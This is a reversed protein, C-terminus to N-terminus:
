AVDNTGSADLLALAIDVWDEFMCAAVYSSLM